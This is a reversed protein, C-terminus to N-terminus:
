VNEPIHMAQILSSRRRIASLPNKETSESSGLPNSFKDSNAEDAQSDEDDSDAEESDSEESDEDSSVNNDQEKSGFNMGSIGSM